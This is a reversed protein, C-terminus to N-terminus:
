KRKMVNTITGASCGYRLQLERYTLGLERDKIIELEQEPSFMKQALSMNKRGEESVIRGRNSASIKRRTEESIVKGLQALRSKLRSEESIIRGKNSESIKKNREESFVKGTMSKSVKECWEESHPKKIGKNSESIKIRSEETHHKGYMPYAQPPLGSQWAVNGGPARNYGFNKDRSKYQIILHSETEDADEKTKCAVIVEYTFNEVGYKVMARHIYQIPQEQRALYKHQRWRDKEKTSQGIYVKNNLADTIKYLYHM